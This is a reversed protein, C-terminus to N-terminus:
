EEQAADDRKWFELGVYDLVNRREQLAQDTVSKGIEMTRTLKERWHILVSAGRVIWGAPLLFPYKELIPYKYRM